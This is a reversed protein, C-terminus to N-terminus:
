KEAAAPEAAEVWELIAMESADSMRPGLKTIRTYGGARSAFGPAIEEFLVKVSAEQKLTSIAQRRAALTGKKGLTVMKEALPAVVKAKSLTTKIRRENILSCVMNALMSDRHAGRRGLKVKKVRHRM